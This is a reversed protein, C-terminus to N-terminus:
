SSRLAILTDTTHPCCAAPGKVELNLVQEAGSRQPGGAKRVGVSFLWRVGFFVYNHEARRAGYFDVSINVVSLHQPRVQAGRGGM